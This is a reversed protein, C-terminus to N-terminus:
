EGRVSHYCAPYSSAHKKEYQVMNTYTKTQVYM